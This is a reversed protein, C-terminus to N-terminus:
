MNNSSSNETPHFVCNLHWGMKKEHCAYPVRVLIIHATKHWRSSCNSSIGLLDITPPKHSQKIIMILLYDEFLDIIRLHCPVFKLHSAVFYLFRYVINEYFSLIYSVILMGNPLRLPELRAMAESAETIVNAGVPLLSKM